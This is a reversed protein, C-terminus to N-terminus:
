GMSYEHFLIYKGISSFPKIVRPRVVQGRGLIWMIWGKVRVPYFIGGYKQDHIQFQNSHSNFFVQGTCGIIAAHHLPTSGHHDKPNKHWTNDLIM